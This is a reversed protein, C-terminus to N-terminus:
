GFVDGFSWSEDVVFNLLRIKPLVKELQSICPIFPHMTDSGILAISWSLFLLFV